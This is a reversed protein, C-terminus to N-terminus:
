VNETRKVNVYNTDYVHKIESGNFKQSVAQIRHIQIMGMLSNVHLSPSM